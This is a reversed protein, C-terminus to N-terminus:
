IVPFPTSITGRPCLGGQGPGPLRPVKQRACQWVDCVWANCADFPFQYVRDRGVSAKICECLAKEFERRSDQDMVYRCEAPDPAEWHGVHSKFPNRAETCGPNVRPQNQCPTNPYFGISKAGLCTIHEFEIFVHSPVITVLDAWCWKARGRPDNWLVVGNGVYAYLNVGGEAGIPDRTLFRGTAPDLYRHTLLLIGSEVDAYYGWQGKYGYPAPNSGSMLQGWADYALNALVNRSNDMIHVANGQPDFQYIFSGYAILGNAGFLVPAAVNGAADLECVLEEGDYLYYRRGTATQKWARLGDGTYGATLVNGYATMGNQVYQIDTLLGEPDNYTYNTTIGRGDIRQELRGASDYSVFRLTDRGPYTIQTLDGRTNYTFSTLNDKGDRVGIVRYAADYVYQVVETSGARSLL